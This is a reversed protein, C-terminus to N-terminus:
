GGGVVRHLEAEGGIARVECSVGNLAKVLALSPTPSLYDLLLSFSSLWSFPDVRTRM